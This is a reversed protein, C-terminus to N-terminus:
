FKLQPRYNVAPPAPEFAAEGLGGLGERAPDAPRMCRCGSRTDRREAAPFVLPFGLRTGPGQPRPASCLPSGPSRPCRRSSGGAGAGRGRRAGAPSSGRAWRRAGDKGAPGPQRQQMERRAAPRFPSRGCSSGLSPRATGQGGGGAHLRGGCGRSRGGCRLVACGRRVEGGRSRPHATGAGVQATERLGASLHPPLVFAASRRRPPLPSERGRRAGPGAAGSGRERCGGAGRGEGAPVSRWGVEARQPAAGGGPARCSAGLRGQFAGRAAAAAPEASRGAAEPLEGTSRLAWPSVGGWTGGVASLGPSAGLCTRAAGVAGPVRVRHGSSEPCPPGRGTAAPARTHTLPSLHRAAPLATTGCRERRGGAGDRCIGGPLAALSAASM